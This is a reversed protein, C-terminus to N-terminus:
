DSSLAEEATWNLKKIRGRIKEYDLESLLSLEMMNYMHGKYGYYRNDFDSSLIWTPDWNQAYRYKCVILPLNVKESFEKLTTLNGYPYYIPSDDPISLKYSMQNRTNNAQEKATAWRM